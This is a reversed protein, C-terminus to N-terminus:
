GWGVQLEAGHYALTGAGYATVSLEGFYNYANGAVVNEALGGVTLDETAGAHGASVVTAGLQFLSQTAPDYRYIKLTFQDVGGCSVKATVQRMQEGVYVELPISKKNGNAAPTWTAPAFGAAAASELGLRAPIRRKLLGHKGAITADQIENIDGSKVPTAANYNTLRAEPWSGASM